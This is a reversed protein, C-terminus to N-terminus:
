NETPIDFTFRYYKMMLIIISLTLINLSKNNGDLLVFILEMILEGTRHFQIFINNNDKNLAQHSINHLFETLAESLSESIEANEGLYINLAVLVQISVLGRADSSCFKEFLQNTSIIKDTKIFYPIEPRSVVILDQSGPFRRHQQFFEGFTDIINHDSFENTKGLNIFYNNRQLDCDIENREDGPLNKITNELYQSIQNYFNLYTQKCITINEISSKILNINKLDVTNNVGGNQTKCAALITEIFYQWNKNQIVELALGDDTIVSDRVPKIPEFIYELYDNFWCFLPKSNENTLVDYKQDENGKMFLDNLIIKVAMLLFLTAINIKAKSQNEQQQFFGYISENTDLNNFFIIRSEIHIRLKNEILLEQCFSSQLFELFEISDTSLGILKVKNEFEKNESGEFFELQKPM